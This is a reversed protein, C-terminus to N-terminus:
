FLAVAESEPHVTPPFPLPVAFTDDLACTIVLPPIEMATLPNGPTLPVMVTVPLPELTVWLPAAGSVTPAGVPPVPVSLTLEEPADVVPVVAVVTLAVPKILM